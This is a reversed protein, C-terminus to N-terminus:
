AVSIHGLFRSIVEETFRPDTNYLIKFKINHLEQQIGCM